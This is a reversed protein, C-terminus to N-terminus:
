VTVGRSSPEKLFLYESFSLLVRHVVQHLSLCSVCENHLLFYITASATPTAGKKVLCFALPHHPSPSSLIGYLLYLILVQKLRSVNRRVLISTRKQSKSKLSLCIIFHTLNVTDHSYVVLLLLRYDLLYELVKNHVEQQKGRAREMQM